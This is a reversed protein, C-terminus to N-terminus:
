EKLDENELLPTKAVEFFIKHNYKNRITMLQPKPKMHLDGNLLYVTSMIDELKYGTYFELTPTWGSVKKMKLALYLCASALISERITVADYNMLSMELIYRALTLVPMSVKACRAYRRLFRYSISIGLDFGCVKLLNLEMRILKKRSYAGDCIYLFDDILPPIREDFKSAVFMAAAGVLQLTEKDVTLKSLYIDVLKVGLYLTEHNLEFSEQIEVMWDVLLSRMWANLCVQRPMYDPIIQSKEREKLYNFIDMAYQSSQNVDNWNEKDFDNVGEPVLHSGLNLQKELQSAVLSINSLSETKPINEKPSDAKSRTQPGKASSYISSISLEDVASSYISEETKEFENSLRTKVKGNNEKLPEKVKVVTETDTPAKISLRTKIKVGPADPPVINENNKPKVVTRISSLQKTKVVVKTPPKKKQDVTKLSIKKDDVLKLLNKKEDLAKKIPIVNANRTIDGFASRKVNATTEKSPSCDAKRKARIMNNQTNNVIGAKSRTTISARAPILSVNKNALPAKLPAM